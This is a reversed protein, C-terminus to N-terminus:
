SSAHKNGRKATHRYLAKLSGSILIFGFIIPILVPSVLLLLSLMWLAFFTKTLGKKKSTKTGEVLEKSPESDTTARQMDILLQPETDLIDIFEDLTYSFAPNIAKLSCYCYRVNDMTGESEQISKGTTKEFLDIAKLSFGVQYEKGAITIPTKTNM